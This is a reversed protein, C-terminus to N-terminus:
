SDSLSKLMDHEAEYSVQGSTRDYSILRNLVTLQDGAHRGIRGDCRFEYRESLVKQMFEQGKKDALVLFDDGHVLLKININLEEHRFVSTWAKGCQFKHKGLRESYDAQWVHSADQTGYMTKKLIACMGEEEDGQPLTVYIDRQAKGYFHARSIDYLALELDQNGETALESCLIKVAELPPMNSFLMHGSLSGHQKKVERVVLRSRYNKKVHDGKNRDIWKLTIPAKGTIRWCEELTRKEYADQKKVWALEDKRTDLVGHTDLLAGTIDDYFVMDESVEQGASKELSPPVLYDEYDELHPDEEPSPGAELSHVDRYEGDRQMQKKLAKLIARILGPPYTRIMKARGNVLHVHRHWPKGPKQSDCIGRLAIALEESNTMWKTMERVYSKGSAKMGWGCMPGEVVFVDDREAIEKVCKEGWSKANKQHEHLFYRGRKMQQKYSECITKLIDKGVELRLAKTERDVRREDLARLPSFAECPPSGTVLYPDEEQLTTRISKVGDSSTLDWSIELDIAYGPLLEYKKYTATVGLPVETVEHAGLALLEQKTLEDESSECTLQCLSQINTGQIYGAPTGDREGTTIDPPNPGAAPGASSSSAAGGASAAPPEAQTGTPEGTSVIRPGVDGIEDYYLDDLSTGPRKERAKAKTRKGTREGETGESSRKSSTEGEEAEPQGLAVSSRVEGETPDPPGKVAQKAKKEKGEELRKEVDALRKRGEETEALRQELRGRCTSNHAVAPLGVMLAECGRCGPTYDMTGDEKELNKKRV